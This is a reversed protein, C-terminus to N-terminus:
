IGSVVSPKKICCSGPCAMSPTPASVWMEYAEPLSARPMVGSTDNCGAKHLRCYASCLDEEGSFAPSEREREKGRETGTSM